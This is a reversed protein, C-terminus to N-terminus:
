PRRYVAHRWEHYQNYRTGGTIYQTGGDMTSITGTGMNSVTQAGGSMVEIKGEGDIVVQTGGNM